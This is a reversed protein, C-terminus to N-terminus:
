NNVTSFNYILPILVCIEDIKLTCNKIDLCNRSVLTTYQEHETKSFPRPSTEECWKPYLKGLFINKM